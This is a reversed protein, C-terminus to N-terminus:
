SYHFLLFYNIINYAVQIYTLGTTIPIHINFLTPIHCYIIQQVDTGPIFQAFPQHLIMILLRFTPYHHFTSSRNVVAREPIYISYFFCHAESPYVARCLLQSVPHRCLPQARSLRAAVPRLQVLFSTAPHFPEPQHSIGASGHQRIHRVLAKHYVIIYHFFQLRVRHHPMIEAAQGLQILTHANVGDLYLFTLRIQESLPKVFKYFVGSIDNHITLPVIVVSQQHLCNVNVQKLTLFLEVFPM